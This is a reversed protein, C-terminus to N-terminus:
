RSELNMQRFKGVNMAPAWESKLFIEYIEPIPIGSLKSYEIVTNEPNLNLVVGGLDFIITSIGELVLKM